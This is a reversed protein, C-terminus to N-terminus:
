KTVIKNYNEQLSGDYNKNWVETNFIDLIYPVLLPIYEQKSTGMFEDVMDHFKGTIKQFEITNVLHNYEKLNPLGNIFKVATAINNDDTPNQFKNRLEPDSIKNVKNLYLDKFYAVVNDGLYKGFDRKDINDRVYDGYSKIINSLEIGGSSNIGAFEEFKPISSKSTLKKSM